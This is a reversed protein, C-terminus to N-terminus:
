ADELAVTAQVPFWAAPEGVEPRSNELLADSMQQDFVVVEIDVPGPGPISSRPVENSEYGFTCLTNAPILPAFHFGRETICSSRLMSRGDPLRVALMFDTLGDATQRQKNVVTLAVEIEGRDHSVEAGYVAVDWFRTSAFEGPEVRSGLFPRANTSFGGAAWIAVVAGVLLAAVVAWVTATRRM